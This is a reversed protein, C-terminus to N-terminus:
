PSTEQESRMRKKGQIQNSLNEIDTENETQPQEDSINPDVEMTISIDGEKETQLQQSSTIPDVQVDMNSLGDDGSIRDYDEAPENDSSESLDEVEEEHFNQSHEM